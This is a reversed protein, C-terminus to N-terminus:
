AAAPRTGAGVVLDARADGDLNKEAVRIGDRSNVDGAFFNSTVM